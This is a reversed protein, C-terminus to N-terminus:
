SWGSLARRSGWCAQIRRGSGRHSGEGKPRDRARFRSARLPVAGAGGDGRGHRAGGVHLRKNMQPWLPGRVHLALQALDRHCVESGAEVGGLGCCRPVGLCRCGAVGRLEGFLLVLLGMLGQQGLLLVGDVGKGGGSRDVLRVLGVGLVAGDYNTGADLGVLPHFSRGQVGFWSDWSALRLLRERWGGGGVEAWGVMGGGAGRGDDDAAAARVSRRLWGSVQAM